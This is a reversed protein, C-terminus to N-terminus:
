GLDGVPHPCKVQQTTRFRIKFVEPHTLATQVLLCYISGTGCSGYSQVSDTLFSFWALLGCVHVSHSTLTFTNSMRDFNLPSHLDCVNTMNLPSFRKMIRNAADNSCLDPCDFKRDQRDMFNNFIAQCDNPDPGSTILRKLRAVLYGHLPSM